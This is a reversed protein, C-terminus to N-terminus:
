ALEAKRSNAELTRIAKDLERRLKKARKLTLYAVVDIPSPVAGTSSYTWVTETAHVSIDQWALHSRVKVSDHGRNTM